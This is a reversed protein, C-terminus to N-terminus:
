RFTITKNLSQESSNPKQYELNLNAIISSTVANKIVEVSSFKLNCIAGLNLSVEGAISAFNEGRIIPHNADEYRAGPISVFGHMSKEVYALSFMGSKAKQVVKDPNKQKIENVKADWEKNDLQLAFKAQLGNTSRIAEIEALIQRNLTSYYEINDKIGSVYAESLREKNERFMKLYNNLQQCKQAPYNEDADLALSIVGLDPPLVSLTSCEENILVSGSDVGLNLESVCNHSAEAFQITALSLLLIGLKKM